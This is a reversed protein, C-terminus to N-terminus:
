VDAVAVVVPSGTTEELATNPEFGAEQLETTIKEPSAKKPDYQVTVANKTYDIGVNSIGQITTVASRIDSDCCQCCM